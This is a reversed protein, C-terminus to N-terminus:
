EPNTTLIKSKTKKISENEIDMEQWRFQTRIQQVAELALRVVHFRDIVLRALPFSDKAALAMNPAM